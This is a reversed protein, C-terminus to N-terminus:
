QLILITPPLITRTARARRKLTLVFRARVGLGSSREAGSTRSKARIESGGVREGDSVFPLL